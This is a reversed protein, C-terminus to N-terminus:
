FCNKFFFWDNFFVTKKLFFCNKFFFWPACLSVRVGPLSYFFILPLLFYLFYYYFFIFGSILRYAYAAVSIGTYFFIFIGTLIFFPFMNEFLISYHFNNNFFSSARNYFFTCPSIVKKFLLSFFITTRM